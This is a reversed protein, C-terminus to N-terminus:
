ETRRTTSADVKVLALRLYSALRSAAELSLSGRGNVFRSLTSPTLGCQRAVGIQPEANRLVADRLQEDLSIM